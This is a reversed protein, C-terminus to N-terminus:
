YKSLNGNIKSKVTTWGSKSTFSNKKINEKNKIEEQKIKELEIIETISTTVVPAIWKECKFKINQGHSDIHKLNEKKLNDDIDCKNFYNYLEDVPIPKPYHIILPRRPHM